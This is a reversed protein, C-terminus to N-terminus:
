WLLFLNVLGDMQSRHTKSNYKMLVRSFCCYLFLKMTLLCTQLSLGQICSNRHSFKEWNGACKKLRLEKTFQTWREQKKRVQTFVGAFQASLCYLHIIEGLGRILIWILDALFFAVPIGSSGLAEKNWHTATQRNKSELLLVLLFLVFTELEM